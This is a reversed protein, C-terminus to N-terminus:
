SAVKRLKPGAPTAEPLASRHDTADPERIGVWGKTITHNIAVVSRQLGWGDFERIQKKVSTETLPKKKETRHQIWDSWARHFAPQDLPKPVEVKSPDFSSAAKGGKPKSKKSKEIEERPLATPTVNANRHEQVRKRTLARTKATKGNHRGFHPFMLSGNENILWGTSVMSEAFGAVGTLRDLLSRTVGVANGDFTQQDAWAWVRILKGLVADPDIGLQEAIQHVEPKDPTTVEIKIWDGAM